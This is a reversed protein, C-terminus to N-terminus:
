CMHIEKCVTDPNMMTLVENLVTQLMSVCMQEYSGLLKCLGSGVTLVQQENQKVMNVIATDVTKCTSCTDKINKKFLSSVAKSSCASMETCAKTPDLQALVYTLADAGFKTVFDKCDSKMQTPMVDCLQDVLGLILPQAQSIEADVMGVFTKCMDCTPDSKVASLASKSTCLHIDSCATQPDLIALIQSIIQQGYQTIIQNCSAQIDAPLVTCVDQVYNLITPLVNNSTILNKVESILYECAECELGKTTALAKYSMRRSNCMGVGPCFVSPELLSQIKAYIADHDNTIGLLCDKALTADLITHCFTEIITTVEGEFTPDKLLKELAGGIAQCGQCEWWYAKVNANAAAAAICLGFLAFVKFM